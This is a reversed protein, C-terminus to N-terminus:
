KKSKRSQLDQGNKQSTKQEEKEQEHYNEAAFEV